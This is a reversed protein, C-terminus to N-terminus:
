ASTGALYAALAEINVKGDGIARAFRFDSRGGEFGDVIELDLTMDFTAATVWAGGQPDPEYLVGIRAREEGYMLLHKRTRNEVPSKLRVVFVGEAELSGHEEALEVAHTKAHRAAVGLTDIEDTLGFDEEGEVIADAIATLFKKRKKRNSWTSSEEVALAYRLGHESLAHGRGPSDVARADEDAEPWPSRGEMRWKVASILGDFDAHAVINTVAGELERETVLEPVVLEPCAHAIKNPVVRFRPDSEWEAWGPHEHHDVFAVLREGLAELFPKTKKEYQTGAAFAVDVMAVRGGPPKPLHRPHTAWVIPIKRSM